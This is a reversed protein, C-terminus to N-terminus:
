PEFGDYFIRDSPNFEYAGIDTAKGSERPFGPGRQDYSFMSTAPGADIACSGQSLAQTQTPGGNDGLLGLHPDCSLTDDPLLIRTGATGVLNNSGGITLNGGSIASDVDNGGTNGFILASTLSAGAIANAGNAFYLGAGSRKAGTLVNSAVTTYLLNTGVVAYIGGGATAASNGSFTSNASYAVNAFIGGGHRRASNGSITSGYAAAVIGVFMGGGDYRARNGSVTDASYLYAYNSSIGGGSGDSYNNSVTSAVLEVFYSQIGGGDSASLNGSVIANAANVLGTSYIGGGFYGSSNNSVTSHSLVVGAAGYIGGGSSGSFNGSIVSGNAVVNSYGFIGGGRGQMSYNGSVTSNTVTLASRAGAVGGGDLVASNDTVRTNTMHLPGSSFVGGGTVTSQNGSIVANTLTLSSAANGTIYIAGGSHHNAYGGTLTVGSLTFNYNSQILRFDNTTSLRSLTVLPQGNSDLNGSVTAPVFFTLASQGAVNAFSINTPTTFGSLDVTDNTGFPDTGTTTCGSQLIGTNISAVADVISCSSNTAFASPDTVPVTAASAIGSLSLPVTAVLPGIRMACVLPRLSVPNRVTTM